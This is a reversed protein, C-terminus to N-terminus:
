LTFGEGDHEEDIIMFNVKINKGDGLFKSGRYLRVYSNEVAKFFDIKKNQHNKAPLVSNRGLEFGNFLIRVYSFSQNRCKRSCRSM